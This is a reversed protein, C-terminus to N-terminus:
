AARAREIMAISEGARLWAILAQRSCKELAIVARAERPSAATPRDARLVEMNETIGALLICDTDHREGDGAGCVCLSPLGRRM